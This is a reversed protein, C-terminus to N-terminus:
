VQSLSPIEAVPNTPGSVRASIVVRWCFQLTAVMGGDGTAVLVTLRFESEEVEARVPSVSVSVPVPKVPEFVTNNSPLTASLSTGILGVKAGLLVSDIVM